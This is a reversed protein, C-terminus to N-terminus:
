EIHANTVGVLEPTELVVSRGSQQVEALLEQRLYGGGVGGWEGVYLHPGWCNYVLTENAMPGHLVICGADTDVAVSPRSIPMPRRVTARHTAHVQMRREAEPSVMVAAAYVISPHLQYRDSV